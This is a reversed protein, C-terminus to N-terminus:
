DTTRFESSFSAINSTPLNIEEPIGSSRCGIIAASAITTNSNAIAIATTATPTNTTTAPCASLYFEGTLTFFVIIM